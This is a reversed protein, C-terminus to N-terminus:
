LSHFYGSDMQQIVASKPRPSFILFQKNINIIDHYEKHLERVKGPDL